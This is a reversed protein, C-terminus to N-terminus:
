IVGISERYQKSHLFLNTHLSHMEKYKHSIDVQKVVCIQRKKMLSQTESIAVFYFLFSLFAPDNNRKIYEIQKM